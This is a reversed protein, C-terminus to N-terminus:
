EDYEVEQSHRILVHIFTMFKTAKERAQELTLSESTKAEYLAKFKLVDEDTLNVGNFSDARGFMGNM